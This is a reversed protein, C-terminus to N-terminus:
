RLYPGHEMYHLPNQADAKNWMHVQSFSISLDITSSYQLICNFQTYKFHPYLALYFQIFESFYQRVKIKYIKSLIAIESSILLQYHSLTNHDNQVKTFSHLQKPELNHSGIRPFLTTFVLENMHVSHSPIGLPLM